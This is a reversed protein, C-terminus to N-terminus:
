EGTLLSWLAEHLADEGQQAAPYIALIMDLLTLTLRQDLGYLHSAAVEMVLTCCESFDDDMLLSGLANLRENLEQLRIQNPLHDFYTLTHQGGLAAIFEAPTNIRMRHRQPTRSQM